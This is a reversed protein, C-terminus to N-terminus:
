YEGIYIIPGNTARFLLIFSGTCLALLLVAQVVGRRVGVRFPNPLLYTLLCGLCGVGINFKSLLGVATLIAGPVAWRARRSVHAVAFFGAGPLLLVSPIGTPFWQCVLGFSLSGLVFVALTTKGHIQRAVLAISSWWMIYIILLWAASSTPKTGENLPILIHG